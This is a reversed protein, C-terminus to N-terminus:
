KGEECVAMAEVGEMEVEMTLLESKSLIKLCIESGQLCCKYNHTEREKTELFLILGIFFACIIIVDLKDIM